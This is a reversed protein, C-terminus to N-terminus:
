RPDRVVYQRLVWGSVWICSQGLNLADLSDAISVTPPRYASTTSAAVFPLTGIMNPQSGSPQHVPPLFSQGPWQPAVPFGPVPAQGYGPQGFPAAWPLPMGGWGPGAPPMGASCAAAALSPFSQQPAQGPQGAPPWAAPASNPPAVGNPLQLGCLGAQSMNCLSTFLSVSTVSHCPGHWSALPSASLSVPMSGIGSVDTGKEATSSVAASSAPWQPQAPIQDRPPLASSIAALCEKRVM